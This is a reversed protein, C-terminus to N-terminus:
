TDDHRRGKLSKFHEDAMKEVVHLFHSRAEEETLGMQAAVRRVLRNNTDADDEEDDRNMESIWVEVTDQIEQALVPAFEEREAQGALFYRALEECKADYPM